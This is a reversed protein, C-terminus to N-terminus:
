DIFIRHALGAFVLVAVFTAFALGERRGAPLDPMLPPAQIRSRSVAASADKGGRTAEVKEIGPEAIM